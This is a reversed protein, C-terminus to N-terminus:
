GSLHLSRGTSVEAVAASYATGIGASFGGLRPNQCILAAM